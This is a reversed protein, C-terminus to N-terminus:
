RNVSAVISNLAAADDALQETTDGRVFEILAYRDKGNGDTGAVGSLYATIDAAGESIPRKDNPRHGDANPGGLVWHFVHLHALGAQEVRKLADLNDDLNKYPVPQWLLKCNPHDIQELFLLASEITDTLTGAHYELVLEIGRRHLVEALAKGDAVIRERSEASADASGRRGAWVRVSPAGLAAATEALGDLTTEPGRPDTDPGLPYYSGYCAVALGADRTMEGVRGATELDGHPVHIDGGWEIAHLGNNKVEAIIAEPTLNRFSISVLGSIWM